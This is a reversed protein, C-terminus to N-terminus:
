EHEKCEPCYPQVLTELPRRLRAKMKCGACQYEFYAGHEDVGITPKYGLSVPKRSAGAQRLIANIAQVEVGFERAILRTALSHPPRSLAVIEDREELTLGGRRNRNIQDRVNQRPTGEYLHNPNVCPGYIEDCTHLAWMGKRIPRGLKEELLKRCKKTSARKVVICGGPAATDCAEQTM